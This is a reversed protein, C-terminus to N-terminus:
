DVDLSHSCTDEYDYIYILCPLPLLSVRSLESKEIKDRRIYLYVDVVNDLSVPSEEIKAALFLCAAGM